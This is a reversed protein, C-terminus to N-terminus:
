PKCVGCPKYGMDIVQDRTTEVVKKNKSKMQAVSSCSPSHFVNTSTNLVYTYVDPRETAAPAHTATPTPEPGLEDLVRASYDGLTACVEKGKSDGYGIVPHNKISYTCVSWAAMNLMDAYLRPMEDASGSVTHAQAGDTWTITAWKTSNVTYDCRLPGDDPADKPVLHAALALNYVDPSLTSVTAPAATPMATLVSTPAVTASAIRPADVSANVSAPKDKGSTIGYVAYCLVAILVYFVFSKYIPKKRM